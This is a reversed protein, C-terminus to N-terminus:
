WLLFLPPSYPSSLHIHAKQHVKQPSEPPSKQFVPSLPSCLSASALSTVLCLATILSAAAPPVDETPSPIKLVCSPKINIHLQQSSEYCIGMWGRIQASRQQVYLNQTPHKLFGLPVSDSNSHPLATNGACSPAM